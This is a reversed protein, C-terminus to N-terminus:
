EKQRNKYRERYGELLSQIELNSVTRLEKRWIPNGDEDEGERYSRSLKTTGDQALKMWYGKGYQSEHLWSFPVVFSEWQRKDEPDPNPISIRVMDRGTRAEFPEGVLGKGFSVTVERREYEAM